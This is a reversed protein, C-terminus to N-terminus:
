NSIFPPHPKAFTPLVRISDFTSFSPYHRTTKEGMTTTTILITELTRAISWDNFSGNVTLQEWNNNHQNERLRSACRGMPAHFPTPPPPYIRSMRYYELLQGCYLPYKLTESERRGGFSLLHITISRDGGGVNCRSFRM